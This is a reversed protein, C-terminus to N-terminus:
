HNGWQYTLFSVTDLGLTPPPCALAMLGEARTTSNNANGKSSALLNSEEENSYSRM